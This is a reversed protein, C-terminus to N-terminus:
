FPFYLRLGCWSNSSLITLRQQPLFTQVWGVSSGSWAGAIQGFLGPLPSDWLRLHDPTTNMFVMVVHSPHVRTSGAFGESATPYGTLFGTIDEWSLVNSVNDRSAVHRGHLMLGSSALLLHIRKLLQNTM